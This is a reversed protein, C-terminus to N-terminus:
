ATDPTLTAIAAGAASTGRAIWNSSDMAYFEFMSASALALENTGDCNAGNISKTSSAVTRVECGTGGTVVILRQGAVPNPLTIINNADASTVTVHATGSAILGTTLGDATATVATTTRQTVADAVSAITVVGGATMTAGGSLPFEQAVGSSDGILIKGDAIALEGGGISNGASDLFANAQVTDFNTTGM